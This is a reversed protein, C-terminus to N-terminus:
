PAAGDLSAIHTWLANLELREAVSSAPAARALRAAEVLDALARWEESRLVVTGDTTAATRMLDTIDPHDTM